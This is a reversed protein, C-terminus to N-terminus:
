GERLCEDVQRYNDTLRLYEIRTPYLLMLLFAPPAPLLKGSADRGGKAVPPQPGYPAGPTEWLFQERASDSLNGWQQKRASVLTDDTADEGVLRLRGAFRYQESSKQFWWVMESAGDSSAIEKVKSSRADTIM